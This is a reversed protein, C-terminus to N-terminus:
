YMTPMGLIDQKKLPASGHIRTSIISVTRGIISVIISLKSIITSIISLTLSIITVRINSIIISAIVSLKSILTSIM